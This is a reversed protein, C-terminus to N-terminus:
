AGVGLATLPIQRFLFGASGSILRKSSRHHINDMGRREVVVQDRQRVPDPSPDRGAPPSAAGDDGTM